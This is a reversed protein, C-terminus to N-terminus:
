APDLQATRVPDRRPAARRASRAAWESWEPMARITAVYAAADPGLEIAHTVFRAVVPAFMADAVTFRGFLFPGDAAYRQRCETWSAEIRAIDRAVGALLRGPPSFRALFDMPLFARLDAFGSHLEACLSRALARDAVADPWLTPEGEAILEAIALSDWVPWDGVLLVPLKGSPSWRAIRQARDPQRLDVVVEDFALGSRRLLL